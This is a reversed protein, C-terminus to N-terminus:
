LSIQSNKDAFGSTKRVIFVIFFVSQRSKANRISADTEAQAFPAGDFAPESADAASVFSGTQRSASMM